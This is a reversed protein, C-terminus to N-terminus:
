GDDEFVIGGEVDWCVADMQGIGVFLHFLGVELWTLVLAIVDDDRGDEVIGEQGEAEDLGADKDERWWCIKLPFGADRDEGIFEHGAFGM